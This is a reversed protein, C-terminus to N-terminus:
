IRFLQGSRQAERFSGTPSAAVGLKRMGIPREVLPISVADNVRSREASEFVFRLNKSSWKGIMETVPQGVRDLHRLNGARDGGGQAQILVEDLRKSKTMVYSMGREPVCSFIDKIRLHLVVPLTEVVVQM